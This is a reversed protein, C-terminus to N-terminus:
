GPLMRELVEYAAARDTERVLVQVGGALELSPYGLSSADASVTADIGEAELRSKILNAETSSGYSGIVVLRM